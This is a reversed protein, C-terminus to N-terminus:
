HRWPLGRVKWGNVVRQSDANKDGEFGELINFSNDYGAGALLTAAEHSRAASRCLLLVTDQPDFRRKVEDLFDPNVRWDPYRKIEIEEADPVRGVLSLEEGSRVDLLRAAGAALLAWAEPPTVAGRYVLSAARARAEAHEIIEEILDIDIATM